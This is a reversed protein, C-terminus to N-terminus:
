VNKGGIITDDVYKTHLIINLALLSKDEVINPLTICIFDADKNHSLEGKNLGLTIASNKTAAKLLTNSLDNPNINDHIMLANRLEDFMSLSNNSSLGDTGISFNLDCNKLNKINLKTNNLLRNSTPCHIVTANLDKIQKLDNKSAEVCHTFSLNKINKFQNLFELPKSIAKNQGFLNKFFTLFSGKNNHLWEYEEPSELFHSSVALNEKKAINLCERILFPHVSYPSHIAIAPIFSDSKYSQVEKLRAKFDSFLTDIMDAKSGIAEVFFVTNIPSNKCAQLDYSYSSIAGISTTGTQKMFNLKNSMLKSTSKLSINEREKIVSNLWTIFNGYKLSTTNSSFEMHVHSNILGPMIVSNEKLYKIKIDPYKNKISDLTDIDIIKEDYVIAGNKIVSNNKDCIILWSASIIQM